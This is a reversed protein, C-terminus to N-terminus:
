DRRHTQLIAGMVESWNDRGVLYEDVEPHSEGAFTEVCQYPWASKLGFPGPGTEDDLERTILTKRCPFGAEILTSMVGCQPGIVHGVGACCAFLEHLTWLPDCMLVIRGSMRLVDQLGEWYRHPFNPWSRAEPILLIDADIKMRDLQRSEPVALPTWPSLHLLARYMAAQSVRPMVTLHDLRAGSNIFHPHVFMTTGDAPSNLRQRLDAADEGDKVLADDVEYDLDFMEPIAAQASKVVVRAPYGHEAEFARTLACVLYSDGVGYLAVLRIM